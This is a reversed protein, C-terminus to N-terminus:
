APLARHRRLRGAAVVLGGTLAAGGAAGAAAAWALRATADSTGSTTAPAAWEASRAGSAVLRAVRELREEQAKDPGVATAAVGRRALSEAHEVQAKNPAATGTTASTPSTTPLGAVQESHEVQAKNPPSTTAAQAGVAPLLAAALALAAVSTRATSSIPM